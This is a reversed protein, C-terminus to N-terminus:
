KKGGPRVISIGESTLKNRSLQGDLLQEFLQNGTRDIAVWQSRPIGAQTLAQSTRTNLILTNGDRVIYEIPLDNVNIKGNNIASVLDDITNIPEGALDSYKKIGEPSFTNSYTKQAYNANELVSSTGGKNGSKGKQGRTANIRQKATAVGEMGAYFMASVLSTQINQEVNVSDTKDAAYDAVQYTMDMVSGTFYGATFGQISSSMVPAAVKSTLLYTALKGPTSVAKEMVKKTIQNAAVKAGQSTAGYTGVSLANAFGAVAADTHNINNKTIGQKLANATAGGMAVFGLRQAVSATLSKTLAIGTTAGAVGGEVISGGFERFNFGTGRKYQTYLNNVGGAFAGVTGGIIGGALLEAIWAPMHGTPDYQTVPQNHCYSYKNLSLPAKYKGAYTDETTFRATKSDYYRSKLYYYGSEVDQYYGAYQYPNYVTENKVLPNGFVDYEYENLLKSDADRVAIVDGHYNYTYYLTDEAETALLYNGHINTRTGSANKELLLKDGDYVFSTTVGNVTKSARLGNGYYTYESVTGDAGEIGTLQNWSDYTYETVKKGNQTEEIAALQNGNRDYEYTTRTIYQGEATEIETLHDAADYTYQIETTTDGDTVTQSSRNGANDYTYTTERGEPETIHVLQQDANYEFTTEETGVVSSLLLGEGDYTYKTDLVDEGPIEYHIATLLNRDNYDYKYYIGNSYTAKTLNGNMDYSFKVNGGTWSVSQLYFSKGYDYTIKTKQNITKATCYDAKDYAYQITDGSSHIVKVLRSLADYSYKSTGTSDMMSIQNGNADYTYKVFDIGATKSTLQNNADYCYVTHVGNRDYKEVLNSVEDYNYIEINGLADRKSKMRNLADYTYTITNGEGNTQSLLNSNLDYEYTYVKGEPSTVRTLNDFSDYEYTTVNGNRDTRSTMNGVADYIYTTIYGEPDKEKILRGLSDYTYYTPDCYHKTVSTCRGMRNYYYKTSAYNEIRYTMRGMNDYTYKITRGEADIESTKNGANDYTYTTQKGHSEKVLILEDYDNYTYQTTVGCANTKKIVNNAADYQYTITNGLADTESLLRSLADYSKCIKNGAEDIELVVNGLADYQYERCDGMANTETTVRNLVDYTWTTRNGCADIESTKNGNEDYEYTIKAIGNKHERSICILRNLADYTYITERGLADREKIVNGNADYEKTTEYGCADIKRIERGLTDLYIIQESDDDYITKITGLVDDYYTTTCASSKDTTQFLRNLGDYRYYRDIGIGNGERLINGESDYEYKTYREGSITSKLLNGVADYIYEKMRGAADTESILNGVADYTYQHMQGLVDQVRVKRGLADYTYKTIGSVDKMTLMNGIPDYTYTTEQKLANTVKVLQNKADYEYRITAGRKDTERIKNGVKDYAYYCANHLADEEKLLQGRNDYIYQTENGCGDTESIKRGLVDYIATKEGADVTHESSCNNYDDEYRYETGGNRQDIVTKVLGNLYIGNEGKEYYTYRKYNKEPDIEELLYRGTEDYIYTYKHRWDDNKEILNGYEDYKMYEANGNGDEVYIPNGKEDYETISQNGLKDIVIEKNCVKHTRSYEEYVKWAKDKQKLNTLEIWKEKDENYYFYQYQTEYGLADQEIIPKLEANYVIKSEKGNGNIMYRASQGDTDDELVNDYIYYQVINNGDYQRVIRGLADYDNRVVQNGEPDVIKSLMDSKSHYYYDTMGDNVDTVRILHHKKDYEYVVKRGAIDEIESLLDDDNYKLKIWRGVSDTVKTIKDDKYTITIKNDNRDYLAILRGKSDYVQRSLDANQVEYGSKLKKFTVDTSHNACISGDEKETFFIKTGTAFTVEYGNQGVLYPGYVYGVLDEHRIKYWIAGSVEETALVEVVTGRSLAGIIKKNSGAKKRVNVGAINVIAERIEEGYSESRKEVKTDFNTRFGKGVITEEKASFSNYTRSFSINNGLGEMEMDTYNYVYNGTLINAGAATMWEQTEKSDVGTHLDSYEIGSRVKPSAESDANESFALQKFLKECILEMQLKVDTTTMNGEHNIYYYAGKTLSAVKELTETDTKKGLAITNVVVNNKVCKDTAKPIPNAGKGDTILVVVKRRKDNDFMDISDIIAEEMDATGMSKMNKMATELASSKETLKCMVKTESGFALIGARFGYEEMDNIFYQVAKNRYKKSDKDVLKDSQDIVFVIDVKSLDIDMECHALIYTGEMDTEISIENDAYKPIATQFPVLKRSVNDVYYITLQEESIGLQALQEDTYTFRVVAKEFDYAGCSFELPSGVVGELTNLLVNDSEAVDFPASMFNTDSYVEVSANGSETQMETQYPENETHGLLDTGIQHEVGDYIGDGDTDPNWAATGLEVETKDDLGDSDTDQKYMDSGALLEDENKIGDLDYDDNPIFTDGTTDETVVSVVNSQKGEGLGNEACVIYHYTSGLDLLADTYTTCVIGEAVPYYTEKDTSRYVNYRRAGEVEIWSLVTADKMFQGSLAAEGVEIEDGFDEETTTETTPEETTSETAVDETSSETTIEETSAETTIGEETTEQEETSSEMDDGYGYLVCNYPGVEINGPTAQFGIQLSAGSALTANYDKCGIAYHNEQHEVIDANWIGTIEYDFDFELIWDTLEKEADNTIEIYGTCGTQWDSEIVFGTHFDEVTTPVTKSVLTVDVPETIAVNDWNAIFSFTVSEEPLIDGNWDAHKVQCTGDTQSVLTGNWLQTIEHPFTFKINWANMTKDSHNTLTMDAQFQNEWRNVVYFTTDFLEESMTVPVQSAEAEIPEEETTALVPKAPIAVLQLVMVLMLIIALLRQRTTRKM